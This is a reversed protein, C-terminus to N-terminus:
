VFTNTKVHKVIKYFKKFEDLAHLEIVQRGSGSYYNRNDKLTIKEMGNVLQSSLLCIGFADITVKSNSFSYPFDILSKIGKNDEVVLIGFDSITQAYYFFQTAETKTIEVFSLTIKPVAHISALKIMGRTSYYNQNMTPNNSFYANGSGIDKNMEEVSEERTMSQEIKKVVKLIKLDTQYHYQGQAVQVVQRRLFGQTKFEKDYSYNNLPGYLSVVGMYKGQLENQLIVTDGIQVEKMSVKGEILETNRVAETYEPSSVPILRMKTESNDRAWVCEEQILGETIGTVHLIDELNGNSIRVLFGRPDIVLWTPDASGYNKRNTSFLTFGPLPFNEHERLDSYKKTVNELKKKENASDGIPIIESEPLPNKQNATNWASYINRSINLM